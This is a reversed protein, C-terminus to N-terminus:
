EAIPQRTCWGRNLMSPLTPKGGPEPDFDGPWASGIAAREFDIVTIEEYYTHTATWFEGACQSGFREDWYCPHEVASDKIGCGTCVEMFNPYSECDGGTETGPCGRIM